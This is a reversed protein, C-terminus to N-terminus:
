GSLVPCTATYNQSAHKECGVSSPMLTPNVISGNAWGVSVDVCANQGMNLPYSTMGAPIVLIWNAEYRQLKISTV